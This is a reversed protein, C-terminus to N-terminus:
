QLPPMWPQTILVPRGLVYTFVTFSPHTEFTVTNEGAMVETFACFM